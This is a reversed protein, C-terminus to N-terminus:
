GAVKGEWRAGPLGASKKSRGGVEWSGAENAAGALHATPHPGCLIPRTRGLHPNRRLRVSIGVAVRVTNRASPSCRESRLSAPVKITGSTNPKTLFFKDPAIRLALTPLASIASFPTRPFPRCGKERGLRCLGGALM